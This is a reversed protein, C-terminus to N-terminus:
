GKCYPGEGPTSGGSMFALMAYATIATQHASSSVSGNPLQKSALWKLSLDIAAETKPDVMVVDPVLSSRTTTSQGRAITACVLVLALGFGRIYMRPESRAFIDRIRHIM